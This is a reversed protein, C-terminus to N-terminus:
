VACKGIKIAQFNKVDGGVRKTTYFEVYPKSSFPDRLVRIGIRDVIQYGQRFDGYAVSLANAGLAPMDAAKYLPKGLLMDPDGVQLGPEWLYRNQTDKLKRVATVTARRMLWSANGQYAEFLAGQLDIIGDATITAASGSNVQEILEFGDGATYSLIGRPKKVGNGSIFATAEDRSFKASVKEALWSEVNFAADDLLKQSAKPKAYLEHVPIIIKKLQPTTTEARSETEGVWGSGAEDLDELIELSDSSISQVSALQRLPSSEFVKKVVESSVQPTVLFGGDPDSNVSLAKLETEYERETMKGRLLKQFAESHKRSKEEMIEKRDEGGRGSRNMATHMSEIEKQLKDIDANMADVKAKTEGSASGKAKIEAIEKDNEKKFNEFLGKLENMKQEVPDM